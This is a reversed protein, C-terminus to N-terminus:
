RVTFGGGRAMLLEKMRLLGERDYYDNPAKDEPDQLSEWLVKQEDEKLHPNQVIALEM